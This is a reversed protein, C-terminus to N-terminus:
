IESWLTASQPKKLLLKKEVAKKMGNSRQEKQKKNEVARIRCASPYVNLYVDDSTGNCASSYGYPKLYICLFVCSVM